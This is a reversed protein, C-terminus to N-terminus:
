VEKRYKKVIVARRREFGFRWLNLLREDEGDKYVTKVKQFKGKITIYNYM